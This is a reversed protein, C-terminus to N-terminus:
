RADPRPAPPSGKRFIAYIATTYNHYANRGALRAYEGFGYMGLWPPIRDNGSLPMQMRSVLEEKLVRNFMHRGRALCDAHFVAEPYRGGAEDRIKSVMLDMESFILEEDRMTLWLQTGERIHTAYHMIGDPEVKTVVRLIHPNGYCEAEPGPLAEALAGIPITDGCAAAGTLGLRGTYTEWAPRGNLEVIRNGDAKTVVLPDGFAVFGHSARTVVELSPDAFGVLWAMHEGVQRGFIQYNVLGRMNDSSTAGFVPVDPGFVEEIARLCEDNAIDIGPAMFYLMNVAPCRQKLDAALEHIKAHSNHGYVGDVCAASFDNGSVAMVAVDKMSESVGESGVVGCCSAGVVTAGPALRAAEDALEKFDHGISAHIFVLSPSPRGECAVEFCEAIARRSNVIRASSSSFTLMSIFTQAIIHHYGYPLIWWLFRRTLRMPFQPLWNACGANKRSFRHSICSRCESELESKM